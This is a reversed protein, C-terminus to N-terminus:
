VVQLFGAKEFDDDFSFVKKIKLRKCVAFSTCDIMSVGDGDLKKFLKWANEEDTTNVHIMKLESDLYLKDGIKVAEKKGSKYRLWGLTELIVLNSTVFKEERSDDWYSIAKKHFDDKPVTIAILASTDVFIM